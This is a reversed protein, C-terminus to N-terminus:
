LNKYGERCARAFAEINAIPVEPELIHTPSLMLRGNAGLTRINEKVVRRVDDPKGWPMTSQTGITGDMNLDPQERRIAPVDLCEPQMPNFITVGAQRLEPIIPLINGDSHYWIHIDPKIAKIASWVKQWRALMFSRWMPVSFMMANQNAVDDGCYVCDVGAKAAAVAVLMNRAAMKDLMCEAWAPQDIMDMLFQEYGRIQWATEYMHGVWTVAVKGAAHAKAVEGAMHDTSFDAHDPFPYQEIQELSTANRLPSHYGWFHYFGSPIMAVGADNITTGEPLTEDAYYVSYDFPKYTAPAAPGTSVPQFFGFHGALDETGTHEVLRRHLDPTFDTRYLIRDPRHGCFTARFVELDTM